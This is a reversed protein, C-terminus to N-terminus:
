HQLKIMSINCNRFSVLMDKIDKDICVDNNVTSGIFHKRDLGFLDTVQSLLIPNSLEKLKLYTVNEIKVPKMSSVIRSYEDEQIILQKENCPISSDTLWSNYITDGESLIFTHIPMVSGDSKSFISCFVISDRTFSNYEDQSMTNLFAQEVKLQPLLDNILCTRSMNIELTVLDRMCKKRNFRDSKITEKNHEIHKFFFRIAFGKCGNGCYPKQTLQNFIAEFPKIITRQSTRKKVKKIIM